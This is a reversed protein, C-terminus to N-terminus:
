CFFNTLVSCQMWAAKPMEFNATLDLPVLGQMPMVEVRMKRDCVASWYWGKELSRWRARPMRENKRDLNWLVLVENVFLVESANDLRARVRGNGTWVFSCLRRVMSCVAHDWFGQKSNANSKQATLFVFTYLMAASNERVSLFGADPGQGQCKFRRDLDGFFDLRAKCGFYRWVMSTNDCPKFMYHSSCGADCVKGSTSLLICWFFLNACSFPDQESVRSCCGVLVHGVMNNWEFGWGALSLGRMGSANVLVLLWGVGERFLVSRARAWFWVWGFSFGALLVLCGLNYNGGTMFFSCCFSWSGM